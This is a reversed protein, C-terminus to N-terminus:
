TAIAYAFGGTLGTGFPPTGLTVLWKLTTNVYIAEVRILAGIQQGATTFTVSDASLDNGVIMDDGAASAVVMEHDSARLFEFVLGYELTPLTFTADATTAIFRTGNDAASVTTNTIALKNKKAGGLFVGGPSYDDDFIFRGSAVMQRRAMHEDVHSSLLTGQILLDAAKVCGALLVHAYKDEAVGDVDLMSIDRLLVGHVVETGDIADGDWQYLNGDSTKKGLLLGARLETTPTNGADVATSDLLLESIDIQREERGWWVVKESTQKISSIGPVGGYTALNSM